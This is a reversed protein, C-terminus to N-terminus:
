STERAAAELRDTLADRVAPWEEALISFMVTDRMTDDSRRQYRRLVGEYQAGLRAIAQQSRANRVDTKLQVRGAGLVDFAYGLLLLKTEPNVVGAWVTPTYATFGIELRADSASMDLYSSTGVVAGAALGAADATLRVIWPLRGAAYGDDLLRAYGAADTPRGALHQWVADHDLAKFLESADLDPDAQTLEVFKGRLRVDRAPPWPMRPWAVDVPRSDARPTFRPFTM